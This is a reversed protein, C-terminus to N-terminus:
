PPGQGEFIEQIRSAGRDTKATKRRPSSLGENLTLPHVRRKRVLRSPEPAINPTSASQNATTQAPSGESMVTAPSNNSQNANLPQATFPSVTAGGTATESKSTSDSVNPRPTQTTQPRAIENQPLVVIAPRGREFYNVGIAGLAGFAASSLLILSVWVAARKREVVRALEIPVVQRASVVTAEDDFHPAPPDPATTPIVIRSRNM